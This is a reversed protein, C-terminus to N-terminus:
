ENREGELESSGRPRPKYFTNGILFYREWREDATEAALARQFEAGAANAEPTSGCDDCNDHINDSM